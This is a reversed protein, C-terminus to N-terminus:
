ASYLDSGLYCQYAYRLLVVLVAAVPLALLVGTFGFLQGGAITAFIVMVPHLGVRDGILLPSLLVSELVQVVGFVLVIYLLHYADHFQMFGTIGAIGIGVIFGLYPVFSLVGALLGILLAFELGVIWLGLGYLVSLALMLTLQGRLFEALVEDCERALKVVTHQYAIPILTHVKTLVVHWDKLLYFTVVPILCVYGVFTLVFQGAHSLGSLLRSTLGKISQANNVVVQRMVDLDLSDVQLGLITGLRHLVNEQSWQILEPLSNMLGTIQKELHPLILLLMILFFLLLVAFFSIMALSRSLGKQVLYDVLPTGLYALLIAVFFPALIPSLLFLLWGSFIIGAFILWKKSDSM